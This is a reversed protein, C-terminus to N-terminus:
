NLLKLMLLPWFKTASLFSIKPRSLLFESLLLLVTLLKFKAYSTSYLRNTQMGLVSTYIPM